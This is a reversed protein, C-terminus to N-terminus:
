RRRQEAPLMRARTVFPTARLGGGQAQQRVALGGGRDLDVSPSRGNKTTNGVAHASGTDIDVVGDSNNQSPANNSHVAAVAGALQRNLGFTPQATAPVSTAVARLPQTASTESRSPRISWHSRVAKQISLPPRTWLTARWTASLPRAGQASARTAMPTAPQPQRTSRLGHGLPASPRSRTTRPPTALPRM